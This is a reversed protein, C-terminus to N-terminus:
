AETIKREFKISEFVKTKEKYGKYSLWCFQIIAPIFSAGTYVVSEDEGQYKIILTYTTKM